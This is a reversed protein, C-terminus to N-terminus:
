RAAISIREVVSLVTQCATASVCLWPKSETVQRGWDGVVGRISSIRTPLGRRDKALILNLAKTGLAKIAAAKALQGAGLCLLLIARQSKLACSLSPHDWLNDIRLQLQYALDRGPLQLNGGLLRLYTWQSDNDIATNYIWFYKLM